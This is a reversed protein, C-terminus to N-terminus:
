KLFLENKKRGACAKKMKLSAAALMLKNVSRAGAPCVSICRMCSICKEKDTEKPNKKPIAEVPCLEACEGCGTCKKSAEPKMPVGGYEKYPRNGPVKTIRIEEVSKAEEIRKKLREGFRKLEEVDKEDPRGAAFQHMISHEAVAAVAGVCVFGSEEITDKLELLTDEYERNGYAVILVAPTQNGKMEKLRKVATEPVRGGFSPVGIFCLEQGNCVLRSYDENPHSFDIGAKRQEWAGSVVRLIKETGGTPSFYIRNVKSIEM